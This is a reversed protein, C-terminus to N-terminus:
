RNKLYMKDNLVLIDVDSSDFLEMVEEPTEVIPENNVNFSTNVLMPCDTAKYFKSLLKHIPTNKDSVTQVRASNDIHTIAPVISRLQNIKEFINNIKLNDNNILKEKKLFYTKQMFPSSKCNEFYEESFEELVIPAFPRFSERFKVKLNIKKQAEINRPDAIISRNGLSRPGFESRGSFFGIIKNRILLEVIDDYNDFKKYNLNFINAM